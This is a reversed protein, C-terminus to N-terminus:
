EIRNKLDVQFPKKERESNLVDNFLREKEQKFLVSRETRSKTIFDLIESILCKRGAPFM